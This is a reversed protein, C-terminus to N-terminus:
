ACNSANSLDSNASRPDGGDKIVDFLNSPRSSQGIVQRDESHAGPWRSSGEPSYGQLSYTGWKWATKKERKEDGQLGILWGVERKEVWHVMISSVRRYGTRKRCASVFKRLKEKKDMKVIIIDVPGLAVTPTGRTPTTAVAAM